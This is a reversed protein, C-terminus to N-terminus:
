LKIGLMKLMATIFYVFIVIMFVTAFYPMYRYFNTQIDKVKDEVDVNVKPTMYYVIKQYVQDDIRFTKPDGKYYLSEISLTYQHYCDVNVRIEKGTFFELDTAKVTFRTEKGNTEDKLIYDLGLIQSPNTDDYLTQTKFTLPNLYCSGVDQILYIEHDTDTEDATFTYNTQLYGGGSIALTYEVGDVPYYSIYYQLDYDYDKRYVNGVFNTSNYLRLTVSNVLDMTDGDYVFFRYETKNDLTLNFECDCYSCQGGYQSEMNQKPTWTYVLRNNDNQDKYTLYCTLHSPIGETRYEGDDTISTDEYKLLGTEPDYCKVWIKSDYTNGGETVTGSVNCPSVVETYDPQLYFDWEYDMYNNVIVDGTPKYNPKTVEVYYSDSPLSFKKTIGSENTYSFGTFTLDDINSSLTEDWMYTVLILTLNEPLTKYITVYSGNIPANTYDNFVGITFNVLNQTYSTTWWQNIIFEDAGIVDFYKTLVYGCDPCINPYSGSDLECVLKYEGIILNTFNLTGDAESTQTDHYLYTNNNDKYLNCVVENANVPTNDVENYVTINSILMGETDEGKYNRVGVGIGYTDKIQLSEVLETTFIFIGGQDANNGDASLYLYEQDNTFSNLSTKPKGSTIHKVYELNKDLKVISINEQNDDEIAVYIFNGLVNVHNKNGCDELLGTLNYTNIYYGPNTKYSNGIYYDGDYKFTTYIYDSDIDLCSRDMEVSNGQYLIEDYYNIGGDSQNLIIVGNINGGCLLYLQTDDLAMSDPSQTNDMCTHSANSLSVYWNQQNTKEFNTINYQRIRDNESDAYYLYTDKLALGCGNDYEQETNELTTGSKSKNVYKLYSNSASGAEQYFTYLNSTKIQSYTHTQGSQGIKTYNKIYPYQYTQDIRYFERGDGPTEKTTTAWIYQQDTYLSYVNISFLILIIMIYRTKM